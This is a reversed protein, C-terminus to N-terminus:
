QADTAVHADHSCRVNVHTESRTGLDQHPPLESSVQEADPRAARPLPLRVSGVRVSARGRHEPSLLVAPRDEDGALAQDATAVNSLEFTVHWLVGSRNLRRPLPAYGAAGQIGEGRAAIDRLAGGRSPLRTCDGPHLIFAARRLEVARAARVAASSRYATGPNEFGRLVSRPSILSSAAGPRRRPELGIRWCVRKIDRDSLLMGSWVGDATVRRAHDRDTIM